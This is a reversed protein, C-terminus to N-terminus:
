NRILESKVSLKIKSDECVPNRKMYLLFLRETIEIFIDENFNDGCEEHMRAEAANLLSELEGAVQLVNHDSPNHGSSSTPKIDM